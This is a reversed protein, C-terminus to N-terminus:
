LLRYSVMTMLWASWTTMLWSKQKPLNGTKEEGEKKIGEKGLLDPASNYGCVYYKSESITAV